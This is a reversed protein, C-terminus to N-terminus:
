KLWCEVYSMSYTYVPRAYCGGCMQGTKRLSGCMIGDLDSVNHADIRTTTHTGHCTTLCYGVVTVTTNLIESYTVCHCYLVELNFSNPDCRVIGQLSDGCASLKCDPDTTANYTMYNVCIYRVCNIEHMYAHKNCFPKKTSYLPRSDMNALMLM